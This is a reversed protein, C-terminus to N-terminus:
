AEESPKNRVLTLYGVSPLTHLEELLHYNRPDKFLKSIRSEPDNTDGFVIANSPCAQACATQIEGDRLPRNENKALLKKEQLRQVCFSCKEVVGRERVTVDPNLVLRGLDSNLHYDFKENTAYRFWNFRRVKYPCNNICYKTGVCRNYAMQNLGESSHNTASVPCVNECPANDCHQCMLPQFVVEPNKEDGNYYRDIRMWHMSRAKMVEEKGVVPINNEAQCAIVCTSCGSCKNLDVALAWHHGKFEVEKYLTVHKEEFEAHLENGSDPRQLYSELNTERVIPRGEMSHHMQTSALKYEGAVKTLKIGTLTYTRNGNSFGTLKYANKGVGNAVKGFATHGYGLALSITGDAQGPQILLPLELEGVKVINGKVFGAERASAPSISAFNDWCVKSIPDPLEMLWPNNTHQGNGMSLNQYVSVEFGSKETATNIVTASASLASANFIITKGANETQFVGDQLAKTWEADGSKLIETQWYNKLYEYYNGEKGMWKMLSEQPLRTSFLPRIAPQMLSFNGKVPEADGWSELYHHAPASYTIHELTEDTTSNLSVSLKLKKLGSIFKETEYYDYVPNVNWLILGGVKNDNMQSVLGEMESDIAQKTLVPASYDITNGSNQLLENIGNIIIQENVENSGCVVISKGRSKWLQGALVPLSEHDSGGPLGSIGALQAIQNYLGTILSGIESPKVPYRKDAKSGTISLRTEFQVHHSLRNEGDTLSRMVAYDQAFEAPALWTGLFDCDFSAIVEAKDFHYSPVMAEGYTAKNAMLMGSFSVPEYVVHKLGPYAAIFEDILKKTSPSIIPSTLLVSTEGASSIEKLKAKIENDLFQWAIEQRNKSPGKLRSHEDYLSLVSAQVRASSGGRTIPSLNNGEIKVPRGDRVKVVISSYESGDFWTSAYHSAMGPTIEEPKNLYPIAKKVPNECSSAIAATAFSFGCFKLFNRRSSPKQSIEEDIIDLLNKGDPFQDTKLDPETQNNLEDLSKWYKKEM